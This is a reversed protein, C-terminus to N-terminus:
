SENRSIRKLATVENAKPNTVPNPAGSVDVGIVQKFMLPKSAKLAEVASEVGQINGEEDVNIESKDLLALVDNPDNANLARAVSKIETNM